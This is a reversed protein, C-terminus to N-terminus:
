KLFDPVDLDDGDDFQIPAPNRVGVPQPEAPAPAQEPAQRAPTAPASQSSPASPSAPRAAPASSQQPRRIATEDRRKPLGGDFGAAIVTM